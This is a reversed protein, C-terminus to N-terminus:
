LVSCHCSLSLNNQLKSSSLAHSHLIDSSSHFYYHIITNFHFEVSLPVSARCLENRKRIINQYIAYWRTQYALQAAILYKVIGQQVQLVAHGQSALRVITASASTAAVSSSNAAPQSISCAPDNVPTAKGASQCIAVAAICEAM